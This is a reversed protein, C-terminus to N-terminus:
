PIYLEDTINAWLLITKVSSGFQRQACSTLKFLNTQKQTLSQLSLLNVNASRLHASNMQHFSSSLEQLFEREM